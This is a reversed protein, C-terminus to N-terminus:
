DIRVRSTFPILPRRARSPEDWEPASGVTQQEAMSARLLREGCRGSGSRLSASARCGVNGQTAAQTGRLGTWSDRPVRGRVWVRHLGGSAKAPRRHVEWGSVRCSRRTKETGRRELLKRRRWGARCWARRFQKDWASRKVNDIAHEIEEAWGAKVTRGLRQTVNMMVGRLLEAAPWALRVTASEGSARFEVVRGRPRPCRNRRSRSTKKTDVGQVAARRVLPRWHGSVAVPYALRRKQKLPTRSMAATAPSQAWDCLSACAPLLQCLLSTALWDRIIRIVAGAADTPLLRCLCAHVPLHHRSPSEFGRARRRVSRRFGQFALLLSGVTLRRDATTVM